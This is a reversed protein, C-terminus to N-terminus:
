MLTTVHPYGTVGPWVAAPKDVPATYANQESLDIRNSYTYNTFAPNGERTMSTFLAVSYGDSKEKKGLTKKFLKKLM